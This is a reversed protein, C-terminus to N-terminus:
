QVTIISSGTKGSSTAQLTVSGTKRPRILAYQGYPFLRVVTTDSVFWSVPQNGLTNGLSDKVTATFYVSDNVAVTASPPTVVVSAVPAPSPLVQILVTDSVPTALVTASVVISVFGQKRGTVLGSDVAGSVTAISTDTSTWTMVPFAIPVGGLGGVAARLAIQGGVGVSTPGSINIFPSGGGAEAIPLPLQTTLGLSVVVNPVTKVSLFPSDPQEAEVVYSGPRLFAIRYHGTSDSHGTAAVILAAAGAGPGLVDNIRYVTINANKVPLVPGTYNTTVTGEIAGTAAANVARLWPLLVFGTTGYYNYLFSRGVDFDIVIEAGATGVAVPAEVLAYLTVKGTGGWDQWNVTAPLGSNWLISSQNADIVMRIAKYQGASLESEGLFATTGQQFALLNFVKHPAAVTTWQQGNIGTTDTEESADISDVFINVSKVSDFPFPSDTLRIRTLPKGGTSTTSDHYCAASLAVLAAITARLLGKSRM